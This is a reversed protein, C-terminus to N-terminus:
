QIKNEIQIKSWFDNRYESPALGYKKKFDRTFHSDNLIGVALRIEKITSFSDSEELLQRAKKLRLDRLYNM